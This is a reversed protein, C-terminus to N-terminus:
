AVFIDENLQEEEYKVDEYKENFRPVPAKFQESKPLSNKRADLWCQMGDDYNDEEEENSWQEQPM